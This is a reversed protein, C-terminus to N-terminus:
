KGLTNSLYKRSSKTISETTGVILKMVTGDDDDAAAADGGVKEDNDDDNNAYCGIIL